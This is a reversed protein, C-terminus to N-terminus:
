RAEVLDFAFDIPVMIWGARTFPPEPFAPAFRLEAIGPAYAAYADRGIVVPDLPLDFGLSLLERVKELLLPRLLAELGEGGFPAASGAEVLELRLDFDEAIRLRIGGEGPEVGVRARLSMVYRDPAPAGPRTLTVDVDGLQMELLDPSGPPTAVVVPPLHADLTAGSVLAQFNQPIVASVDLHLLGQRWLEFALANVTALRIAVVLGGAAPWPPPANIHAPVGPFPHPPDTPGASRVEGDLFLALGDRAHAEPARLTMGLRLAIAPLLDSAPVEIPIDALPALADGLGLEIFGPVAERVLADVLETAAGQLAARVISGLTDLLGGAGSDAMEGGLAEIAVGVDVVRLGPAGDPGAEISALAFAAATVRITRTLDM